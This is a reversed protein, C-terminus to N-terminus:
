AGPRRRARGAVLRLRASIERRLPMPGTAWGTKLVPATTYGVARYTRSRRRETSGEKCPSLGASARSERTETSRAAPWNHGRHLPEPKPAHVRVPRLLGVRAKGSKGDELHRGDLTRLGRHRSSRGAAEHRRRSGALVRIRPQVLRHWSLRA